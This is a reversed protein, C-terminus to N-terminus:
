LRNRQSIINKCKLEISEQITNMESRYSLIQGGTRTLCYVDCVHVCVIVGFCCHM